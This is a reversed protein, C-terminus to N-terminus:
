AAPHDRRLPSSPGAFAAAIDAKLEPQNDKVPFVYDGGAKLVARSVSKQCFMADGSLVAGDLDLDRILKLAATIENMGPANRGVLTPGQRTRGSELKLQGVVGSFKECYASLIHAAPYDAFRSGRAVKGDIAVHDDGDADVARVWKALAREFSKVSLKSFVYHLTAHCPRGREIGFEGLLGKKAVEAIWQAIAGLSSCGGLMAGMSLAIISRLLYRRGQKKRRDRVKGLCDWLTVAM